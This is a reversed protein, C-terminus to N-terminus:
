RFYLLKSRTILSYYVVHLVLPWLYASMTANHLRRTTKPKLQVEWAQMVFDMRM